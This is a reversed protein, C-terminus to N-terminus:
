PMTRHALSALPVQTEQVPAYDAQIGENPIEQDAQAAKSIHLRALEDMDIMTLDRVVVILGRLSEETILGFHEALRAVFYGSSMRAGQKRGEAHRFLYQALLYPINVVTGEDISKLYFLNTATVKEPAQGRGSISFAILRHCLWRTRSLLIPSSHMIPGTLKLGMPRWRKATHLGLALIFQRWSMQRRLGGLQFCLTDAVDLELVIDSIRYTSFFELMLEHVLPRHIEFLRRWAHNIFMIQGQADIHEMRLKDTMAQGMEKTFEEFNLVQVRSVQRDFIRGLREEFNHIIKDTYEQGEYRLWAYRQYIPPLPAMDIFLVWLGENMRMGWKKKRYGLHAVKIQEKHDMKAGQLEFGPELHEVEAGVSKYHEYSGLYVRTLTEYSLEHENEM